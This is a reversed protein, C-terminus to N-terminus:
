GNSREPGSMQQEMNEFVPEPPISIKLQSWAARHITNEMQGDTQSETRGDTVSKKM